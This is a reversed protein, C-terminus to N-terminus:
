LWLEINALPCMYGDNPKWNTEFMQSVFYLEDEYLDLDHAAKITRARPKEKLLEAVLYYFGVEHTSLHAFRTKFREKWNITRLDIDGVYYHFHALLVNASHHVEEIFKPHQFRVPSNHKLAARYRDASWMSCLHLLVFTCLFVTTFANQDNSLVLRQLDDMVKKRLPLIARLTILFDWQEVSVPSRLVRGATLPYSAEVPRMDETDPGELWASGTTIMIAFWMRFLNQILVREEETSAKKLHQKAMDFTIRVLEDAKKAELYEDIRDFATEDMIKRFEQAAEEMNVIAFPPVTIAKKKGDDMWKREMKDGEVPIFKRHKVTIQYGPFVSARVTFYRIENSAWLTVNRMELKQWRATYGTAWPRALSFDLLRYRLCPIRHFTPKVISTCPKCPGEPNDEDYECKIKQARCRICAKMQRTKAAQERSKAALAGRKRKGSSVILFDDNDREENILEVEDEGDTDEDEAPTCVRRVYTWESGESSSPLPLPGEQALSTPFNDLLNPLGGLVQNGGLATEFNFTSVNDFESDISPLLPLNPDYNSFAGPYSSLDFGFMDDAFYPQLENSTASASAVNSRITFPDPHSTSTDTPFNPFPDAYSTSTDIPSTELPDLHFTLSYEIANSPMSDSVIQGDQRRDGQAVGVGM